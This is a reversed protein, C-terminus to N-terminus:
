DEGRNKLITLLAYANRTVIANEGIRTKIETFGDTSSGAEVEKITFTKNDATTFVYNKQQWKVLAEDPVATVQKNDVQIEGTVFNGAILDEAPKELHCHVEIARNEDLSHTIFEIVAMYKKEPAANSSCRVKQGVHLNKADNEFVQLDIHLESPDILEFLVDTPSVYKGPNVNVKSVYSTIPAYLNVTRSLNAENLKDPNIGVMRLRESLAKVLVKQSEYDAVAQQFVRQSNSQSKNLEQQRVYDANTFTLKAKAALYDQQLQIFSQDEITALITGKQVRMGPILSSSKIYGGMPFSITHMKEPPVEATGNVRLTAHMSKIELPGTAIEANKIQAPTLAITVPDASRAAKTPTGAQKEGKNQCSALGILILIYFINRSM